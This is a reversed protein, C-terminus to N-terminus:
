GAPSAVGSHPRYAMKMYRDGGTLEDLMQGIRKDRTEPRRAQNIWLLYDNQQYPPRDRYAEMLGFEVLAQAVEPPM